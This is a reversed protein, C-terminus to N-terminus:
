SLKLWSRLEHKYQTQRLVSEETNVARVRVMPVSKEWLYVLRAKIIEGSPTKLRITAGLNIEPKDKKAM